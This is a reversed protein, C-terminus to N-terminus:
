FRLQLAMGADLGGGSLSATPVLTLQRLEHRTRRLSASSAILAAGTLIVGVLGVAVFGASVQTAHTPQTGSCFTFCSYKLAGTVGGTLMVFSGLLSYGHARRHHRQRREARRLESVRQELVGLESGVDSSVDSSVDSALALQPSSAPPEPAAEEQDIPPPTEATAM